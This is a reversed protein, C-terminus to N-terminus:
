VLNRPAFSMADMLRTTGVKTVKGKGMKVLINAQGVQPYDFFVPVGEQLESLKAVEVQPNAVEVQPYLGVVAGPVETGDSTFVKPLFVFLAAGAGAAGGVYLFERRSVGM